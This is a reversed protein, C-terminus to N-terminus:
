ATQRVPYFQRDAELVVSGIMAVVQPVVANGLCRLRDVRSPVGNAVRRIGPQPGKGKWEIGIGSRSQVSSSNGAKVKTSTAAGMSGAVHGHIAINADAVHSDCQFADESQKERISFPQRSSAANAVIWARQRRHPAGAHVAGVVLPRVTYGASELDSLVRDAGRSRLAPVNEAIVWRPRIERILRFYESWLGSRSGEIGAGKGATSIDQCPFGGAILDIQGVGDQKLRKATLTRVDEYLWVQPWHKRLVRRAYGDQECFAVTQMGVSELGLAFGGIGSFLDLVKVYDSEGPILNSLQQFRKRINFFLWGARM